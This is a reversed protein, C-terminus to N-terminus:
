LPVSTAFKYFASRKEMVESNQSCHFPQIAPIAEVEAPAPRTEVHGFARGGWRDVLKYHLHELHKVAM